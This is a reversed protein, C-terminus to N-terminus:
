PPAPPLSGAQWHLLCLNSEQTSFIGQLLFHCGRWYEQRSFGTSLPAQCAITWPTVFLRVCRWVRSCAVVECECAHLMELSKLFMNYLFAAKSSATLLEESITWGQKSASTKLCSHSQSKLNSKQPCCREQDTTAMRNRCPLVLIARNIVGLICRSFLNREQCLGVRKRTRTPLRSSAERYEKILCLNSKINIASLTLWTVECIDSWRWLVIATHSAWM